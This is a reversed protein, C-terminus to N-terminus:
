ISQDRRRKAVLDRIIEIAASRRLTSTGPKYTLGLVGITRAALTGLLGELRHVVMGNQFQNVALVGNFLPAPYGHQAALRKLVIM